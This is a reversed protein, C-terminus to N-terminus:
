PQSSMVPSIVDEVSGLGRNASNDSCSRYGWLSVVTAMKLVYFSLQPLTLDYIETLLLLDAVCPARTQVM